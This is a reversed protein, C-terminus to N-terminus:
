SWTVWNEQVINLFDGFQPDADSSVSLTARYYQTKDSGANLIKYPGIALEIDWTAVTSYCQMGCNFFTPSIQRSPIRIQTLQIAHWCELQEGM